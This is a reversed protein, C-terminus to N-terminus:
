CTGSLYRTSVTPIQWDLFITMPEMEDDDKNVALSSDIDNTEDELLHDTLAIQGLDELEVDAITDPHGAESVHEDSPLECIVPSLWQLAHLIPTGSLSATLESAACAEGAYRIASALPNPWREQLTSMYEHRQKLILYYISDLFFNWTALLLLSSDLKRQPQQLAFKVACLEHGFWRCMNDAEMGLRRQEEHCRDLKLLARIGSRVDRDGLWLPTEGEPSRTIWVDELLTQDNRLEALKTPLPTPLPIAYTPNYLEELRACYNNFKGIASM